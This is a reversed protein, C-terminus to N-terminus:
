NLVDVGNNDDTEVREPGPLYYIAHFDLCDPLEEIIGIMQDEDTGMVVDAFGGVRLPLFTHDVSRRINAGRRDRFDM